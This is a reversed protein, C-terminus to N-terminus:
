PAIGQLDLPGHDILAQIVAALDNKVGEREKEPGSNELYVVQDGLSFTAYYIVNQGSTCYGATVSTGSVVTSKEEGAIITDRLTIDSASLVLKVSGLEGEIGILEGAQADATNEASFIATVAAPLEPFLAATEEETLPRSTITVAIDSLVSGADETKVFVIEEGNALTAVDDRGGFWGSYFLTVSAIVIVALCAAIAGWKKWHSLKANKEYSFAEEMYKSDLECMADSFQKGTM